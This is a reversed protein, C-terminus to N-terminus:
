NLSIFVESVGTSLSGRDFIIGAIWCYGLGDEQLREEAEKFSWAKVLPGAWIKMQGDTPDEAYLKTAFTLM